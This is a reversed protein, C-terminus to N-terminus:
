KNLKFVVWTHKPNLENVWVQITFNGYIAEAFTYFESIQTKKVDLNGSHAVVDMDRALFRKVEYDLPKEAETRDVYGKFRPKGGMTPITVTQGGPIGLSLSNIRLKNEVTYRVLRNWPSMLGDVWKYDGTGEVITQGDSLSAIFFVQPDPLKPTKLNLDNM